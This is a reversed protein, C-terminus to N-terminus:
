EYVRKVKLYWPDGLGAIRTPKVRLGPGSYTTRIPVPAVSSPDCHLVADKLRSMRGPVSVPSFVYGAFHDAPKFEGPYVLLTSLRPSLQRTQVVYPIDLDIGENELIRLRIASYYKSRESRTPMEAFDRHDRVNNGNLHYALYKKAKPSLKLSPVTTKKLRRTRIKEDLRLTTRLLGFVTKYAEPNNEWQSIRDLGHDTLWKAHVQVEVRLTRVTVEQMEAELRDDDLPLLYSNPQDLEKVYASILFERERVYSTYTYKSDPDVPKPPHSYAGKKDKKKSEDDNRRKKNLIAETHTRYEHLAERALEESDFEYLATTTVDIISVNDPSIRELGAQTCGNSALWSKLLWVGARAAQPVGNVLQRNHGIICAPVNVEILYGAIRGFKYRGNGADPILMGIPTIKFGSGTLPSTGYAVRFDSSSQDKDNRDKSPYQYQDYEETTMDEDIFEVLSISDCM